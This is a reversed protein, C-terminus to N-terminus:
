LAPHKQLVGKPECAVGAAEPKAYSCSAVGLESAVAKGSTSIMAGLFWSHISRSQVLVQHRIGDKEWHSCLELLARLLGM